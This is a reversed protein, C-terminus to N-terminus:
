ETIGVTAWDLFDTFLRPIRSLEGEGFLLQASEEVQAWRRPQEGGTQQLTAAGLETADEFIGEWYTENDERMERVQEYWGADLPLGTADRIVGGSIRLAEASFREGGEHPAGVDLLFVGGREDAEATMAREAEALFWDKSDNYVSASHKDIAALRCRCNPHLPPIANESRLEDLTYVNGHKSQCADCASGGESVFLYHTYGVSEQLALVDAFQRDYSRLAGALRATEKRLPPAVRFLLATGREDHAVAENVAQTLAESLRESIRAKTHEFQDRLEYPLRTDDARLTDLYSSSILEVMERFLADREDDGCRFLLDAFAEYAFVDGTPASDKRILNPPM